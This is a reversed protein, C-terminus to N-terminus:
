PVEPRFAPCPLVACVAALSEGDIADVHGPQDSMLGNSAVHDAGLLHGLEHAITRYRQAEGTRQNIDIRSRDAPVMGPAQSGDPRLVDLALTVPVGGEGLTIDCGTAESWREAAAATADVLVPGPSLVVSCAATLALGPPAEEDRPPSSSGACAQALLLLVLVIPRMVVILTVPSVRDHLVVLKSRGM